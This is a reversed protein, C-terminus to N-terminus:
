VVGVIGVIAAVVRVWLPKSGVVEIASRAKVGGVRGLYALTLEPKERVKDRERHTQQTRTQQAHTYTHTSTQGLLSTILSLIQLENSHVNYCFQWLQPAQSSQGYLSKM